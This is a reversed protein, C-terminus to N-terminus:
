FGVAIAVEELPRKCLDPVVFWELRVPRCRQRSPRGIRDARAAVLERPLKEVLVLPRALLNQAHFLEECGSFREGQKAALHGRGGWQGVAGRGIRVICGRHRLPGLLLAVDRRFLLGLRLGLEGAPFLATISSM